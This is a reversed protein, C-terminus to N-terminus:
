QLALFYVKLDFASVIATTNIVSISRSLQGPSSCFISQEWKLNASATTPVVSILFFGHPPVNPGSSFGHSTNAGVTFSGNWVLSANLKDITVASNALHGTGVSGAVIKTGDVSSAAMEALGISGDAIKATTVSNDALKANTVALNALESTGVAGDVIRTADVSNLALKALSVAGDAIKTGDVSNAALKALGVNGDVIKTSDVSNAALKLATITGDVIKTADVSAAALKIASISGDALKATTVALNALESTGVSLDVIRSADVSNAALKALTVAGDQIHNTKVGAGSNTDQASTGDAEALKASTVANDELDAAQVTAVAIDGRITGEVTLNGIVHLNGDPKLQTRVWGAEAVDGSTFRLSRVDLDGGKVGAVRRATRDVSSVLTGGRVIRALVLKEGPNAPQSISTEILPGETWRTKAPIGTEDTPDTQTEGYAITVYVAQGAPLDVLEVPKNAALVIRRGQDDYAAGANVTVATAGSPPDPIELGEAIGPTHLLRAHDRQHHTHYAQEATFDPERLFQGNFYHLRKVEDAM